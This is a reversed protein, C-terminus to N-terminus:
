VQVSTDTYINGVCVQVAIDLDAVGAKSTDVTFETPLSAPVGDEIGPGSVTVKSADFAPLITQEFPSCAYQYILLCFVVLGLVLQSCFVYIYTYFHTLYQYTFLYLVNGALYM